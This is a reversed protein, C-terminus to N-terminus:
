NSNLERLRHIQISGSTSNLFKHIFLCHCSIYVYCKMKLISIIPHISVRSVSSTWEEQIDGCASCIWISYM